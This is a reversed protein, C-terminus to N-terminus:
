TLTPRNKACARGLALQSSRFAAMQREAPTTSRRFYWSIRDRITTAM